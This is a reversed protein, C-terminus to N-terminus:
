ITLNDIKVMLQNILIQQKKINQNLMNMNKQNTQNQLNFNNNLLVLNNKNLEKEDNSFKLNNKLNNNEILLKNITDVSTQVIEKVSMHEKVLSNFSTGIKLINENNSQIKVDQNLNYNNNTNILELCNENNSIVTKNLEKVGSLALSSLSYLFKENLYTVREVRKGYIFVDKNNIDKLYPLLNTNDINIHTTDIINTVLIEEEYKIGEITFKILITDNKKLLHCYIEIENNILKGKKYITPLFRNSGKDYINVHKKLSEIGIGYYLSTTEESYQKVNNYKDMYQIYAMDDIIDIPKYIGVLRLATSENFCKNRNKNKIINSVFRTNKENKMMINKVAGYLNSNIVNRDITKFDPINFRNRTYIANPLIKEVDQAIFGTEDKRKKKSYTMFEDNWEFEKLELKRINNYCKEYNAVKINEKVRMDSVDTITGTYEISGNVDLEVNPSMIGIGLKGSNMLRMRESGNTWFALDADGHQKIHADGWTGVMVDFGDASSSGTNSNTMHLICSASAAKHLHLLEVPNAIGIGVNGMYSAESSVESWVSSGFSQVIGNISIDGTLNINACEFDALTYGTGSTDVTTTPEVQLGKFLKYEGSNSSDRFLGTYKALGDNYKSYFGSDVIDASNNSALSIMPDQISITETNMTITTGNVILNADVTLDSTFRGSGNVDLKYSPTTDGIGVNGSSDLSIVNINNNYFILNNADTDKYIQTSSVGLIIRPFDSM